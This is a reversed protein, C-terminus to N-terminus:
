ASFKKREGCNAPQKEQSRQQLVHTQFLEELAATPDTFTIEERSGTRILHSATDELWALTAEGGAEASHQILDDSLQSWWLTVAEDDAPLASVLKVALSDAASDLLLVGGVLLDEGPLHVFATTWQGSRTLMPQYIRAKTM